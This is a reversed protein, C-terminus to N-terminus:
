GSYRERLSEPPLTTMVEPHRALYERITTVRDCLVTEDLFSAHAAPDLKEAALACHRLYTACPLLGSDRPWGWCTRLGVSTYLEDFRSQGWRAIYDADTSAQCLMGRGVGGDSDVFDVMALEFEEERERFAEMGLGSDPVEFATVAFSAGTCPEASLSAMQKTAADAIGRTVFVSPSHAFVRRYGHLRGVRFNSLTPFTLRSSRESLLSGLGLITIKKQMKPQRRRSARYLLASAAVAFLVASRAETLM